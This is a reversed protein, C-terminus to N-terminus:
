TIGVKQGNIRWNFSVYFKGNESATKVYFACPSEASQGMNHM